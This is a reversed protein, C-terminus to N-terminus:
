AHKSGDVDDDDDDNADEVVVDAPPPNRPSRIAYNRVKRAVHTTHKNNNHQLQQQTGHQHQHQPMQLLHQKRQRLAQLKREVRSQSKTTRESNSRSPPRVFTKTQQGSLMLNDEDALQQQQQQKDEKPRKSHSRRSQSKSRLAPSTQVIRNLQKSLVSNQQQLDSMGQEIISLKSQLLVNSSGNNDSDDARKTDQNSGYRFVAQNQRRPSSDSDSEDVPPPARFVHQSLALPQVVPPVTLRQQQKQQALPLVGGDIGTVMAHRLDARLENGIDMLQERESELRLVKAQSASLRSEVDDIHRMARHIRRRYKTKLKMAAAMLEAQRKEATGGSSQQAQAAYMLKMKLSAVTGSLEKVYNRLFFLEEANPVAIGANRQVAQLQRVLVAVHQQLKIVRDQLFAYRKMDNEQQQKREAASPTPPPAAAAASASATSKADSGSGSSGVVTSQIREMELRMEGIVSRIKSNQDELQHSHRLLHVYDRKLRAIDAPTLEVALTAEVHQAFANTDRPLGQVADQRAM